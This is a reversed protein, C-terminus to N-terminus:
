KKKKMIQNILIFAGFYVSFLVIVIQSTLAELSVLAIRLTYVGFVYILFYFLYQSFLKYGQIESDEVLERLYNALIFGIFILILAATLAPIVVIFKALTETLTPFPLVNVAFTFFLLYISWKVLTLGITLFQHQVLKSFETKEILRRLIYKVFKGVFVGILVLLCALLISVIVQTATYINGGSTVSILESLYDAM